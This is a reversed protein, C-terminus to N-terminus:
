LGFAKLLKGQLRKLTTEHTSLQSLDNVEIPDLKLNYLLYQQKKKNYILKFQEDNFQEIVGYQHNQRHYSYNPNEDLDYSWFSPSELGLQDLLFHAIDTHSVPIQDNLGLSDSSWMVLPIKLNEEYVYGGHGFRNREGLAEGHDSTVVFIYEDLLGKKDLTEYLQGLFFDTQLIGNDYNNNYVISDPSLPNFPEDPLYKRFESKRTGLLHPSMLHFYFFQAQAEDFNLQELEDLLAQDDNVTRTENMSGDHYTQLESHFSYARKLQYWDNHSGSLIFHNQYDLESLIDQIKLNAHSLEFIDTGSLISLIGCFSTSCNSRADPFNKFSNNQSMSELFPTTERSYGNLSLRDPRMADCILLIINPKKSPQMSKVSVLYEEINSRDEVNLNPNDFSLTMPSLFNYVPEGKLKLFKRIKNKKTLIFPMMLLSLLFIGQKIVAPISLNAIWLNFSRLKNQLGQHPLSFLVLSIIFIFGMSLFSEFVYSNFVDGVDTAIIRIVDLSFYEGWERLSVFNGLYILSYFLGIGIGMSKILFRSVKQNLVFQHIWALVLFSQLYLLVVLICHYLIASGPLFYLHGLGLICGLHVVAILLFIYNKIKM